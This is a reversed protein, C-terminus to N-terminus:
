LRMAHVLVSLGGMTVNLVHALLLILLMAPIKLWIPLPLGAAMLNFNEAIQVSALGVAFLRLYSIIDGMAGFINLPLMGLEIGGTKLEGRGLTFCFILLVSGGLLPVTFGPLNFGSIIISCVLLFIGWLAGIWGVQALCKRSPFLLIANWLRALTLHVAGLVFCFFMINDYDGFWRAVPHLFSAPLVDAPIGFYTATAVGWLITASSFVTGLIFVPRPMKQRLKFRAALTALLFVLGYGADGILMAFFITFFIYCPVSIDSESYGPVIELAKFLATIPRFIRPPELLVPPTEDDTPDRLAIGWGETTATRHFAESKRADIYGSIHAVELTDAEPMNEFASWYEEDRGCEAIQNKLTATDAGHGRLQAAIDSLKGTLSTQEERMKALSRPPLPIFASPQLSFASPLDGIAVGYVSEKDRSIIEVVENNSVFTKAPAKFLTVPIGTDILRQAAAPDFDGFPEYKTIQTQCTRLTEQTAIYEDALSNIKEVLPQFGNSRNNSTKLSLPKGKATLAANVVSLARAAAEANARASTTGAGDTKKAEIHLVGMSALKALATEKASSVCLLTLRKM